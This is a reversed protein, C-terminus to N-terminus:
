APRPIAGPPPVAAAPAEEADPRGVNGIRPEMIEYGFYDLVDGRRRFVQNIIAIQKSTLRAIQRANMNSLMEDYRGKVALKQRLNLDDLAPVLSRIAREVREPEDCMAEYTFLVGRSGHTELNDRQLALCNVVHEAAAEFYGMDPPLPQGTRYRHIGECVAYPNRVMFLFKANRFHRRLAGVQLLFPPAKTVFVSAQPDSAFAQFYWARRNTPWDYAAPNAFRDRWPRLSWLLRGHDRTNPGTFGFAFQGELLLNWTQRCTVLAQMLFTSGSNNPAIVFVHTEVVSEIDRPAAFFAQGREVPVPRVQNMPARGRTSSRCAGNMLGGGGAASRDLRRATRLHAASLCETWADYWVDFAPVPALECTWRLMAAPMWPKVPLNFHLVKADRATLGERALILDAHRLVFNYTSGILTQRGAFYRNQLFQKTHFTDSGRWSEPTLMSLLDAYCGEGTLSADICLFGDNFTSDLAGAPCAHAPDDLLAFTAADLCRGSLYAFEGCCLLADQSDFLERIPQRFLLDGDCLLLKRYGTLRYAELQHFESLRGAFRPLAAGVRALRERLESSVSVFRVRDSLAALSARQREDLGDHIVVVDVDVDPHHKLFSGVAVLTGPLFNETTATAFCIKSQREDAKMAFKTVADVILPLPRDGNRGGKTM